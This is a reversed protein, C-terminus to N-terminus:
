EAPILVAMHPIGYNGAKSNNTPIEIKGAPFAKKFIMDKFVPDAKWSAALSTKEWDEPLDVKGRAMYLLYVTCSKDITFSFGSGPEVSSGRMTSVCVAGKLEEPIETFPYKDATRMGGLKLEFAKAGESLNTVTVDAAGAFSAAALMVTASLLHALKM